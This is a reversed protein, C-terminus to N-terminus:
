APTFQRNSNFRFTLRSINALFLRLDKSFHYRISRPIAKQFSPSFRPPELDPVAELQQQLKEQKHQTDLNTDELWSYVPQGGNLYSTKAIAADQNTYKSETYWHTKEQGDYPYGATKPYYYGVEWIQENPNNSNRYVYM